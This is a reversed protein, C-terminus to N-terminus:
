MFSDKKKDLHFFQATSDGAIYCALLIIIIWFIIGLVKLFGATFCFILVKTIVLALVISILAAALMVFIGLLIKVFVDYM